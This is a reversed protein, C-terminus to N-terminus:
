DTMLKFEIRRNKQRGAATKNDATPEDMGAGRTHIRSAEIGKGVIYDRVSDARQQSLELNRERKGVNDTHGSIAIRISPYDQMVKVAADLTKHSTKRITAKGFDFEIGQIIGTFKKVEEPIEDPCGDADEFGNKTEPEKPCKDNPDLIGDKDPDLDPCGDPAVGPETPCKDEPDIFGDKDTDPPPCGDPAVGPVTPCSDAPDLFGDADTDPPTPPLKNDFGHVYTIGVFGAWHNTLGGDEAQNRQTLYDRLEARLDLSKHVPIKAGFGFHIDPDADNGMRDTKAGLIGLGFLGFPTVPGLPFQGVIHGGFSGFTASGGTKTEGFGLTGDLELGLFQIPYYGIRLGLDVVPYKFGVHERGFVNAESPKNQFNHDKAPFLFGAFIGAELTHQESREGAEGSASVGESTSASFSASADEQAAAPMACVGAVAAIAFGFAKKAM